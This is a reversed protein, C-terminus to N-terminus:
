GLIKFGEAGAKQLGIALVLNELLVEFFGAAVLVLEFCAESM